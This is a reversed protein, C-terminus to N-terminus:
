SFFSAMCLMLRHSVFQNLLMLTRHAKRLKEKTVARESNM